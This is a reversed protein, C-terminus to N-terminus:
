RRPTVTHHALRWGGPQEFLEILRVQARHRQGRRAEAGDRRGHQVPQDLFEHSIKRSAGIQEAVGTLGLAQEGVGQRRLLDGVNKAKRGSLGSWGIHPSRQPLRRLARNDGQQHRLARRRRGIDKGPEIRRHRRPKDSRQRAIPAVGREASQDRREIHRRKGGLKISSATSAANFCAGAEAASAPPRDRRAPMM